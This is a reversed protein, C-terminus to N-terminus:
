RLQVEKLEAKMKEEHATAQAMKHEVEGRARSEITHINDEFEKIRANAKLLDGQVMGLVQKLSDFANQDHPQTVPHFETPTRSPYVIPIRGTNIRFTSIVLAQDQMIKSLRDIEREKRTNDVKLEDVEEQVRRLAVQYESILKMANREKQTPRVEAAAKASVEVNRLEVDKATRVVEILRQYRQQQHISLSGTTVYADDVAETGQDAFHRSRDRTLQLMNPRKPIDIYDLKVWFEDDSSETVHFVEIDSLM